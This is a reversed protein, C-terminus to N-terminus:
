VPSSLLHPSLPIQLFFSFICSASLIPLLVSLSLSLSFSLITLLLPLHFHDVFLCHEPNM